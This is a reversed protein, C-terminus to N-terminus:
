QVSLHFHEMKTATEWSIIKPQSFTVDINFVVIGMIYANDFRANQPGINLVYHIEHSM